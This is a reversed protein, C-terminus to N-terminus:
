KEKGMDGGKRVSIVYGSLALAMFVINFVLHQGWTLKSIIGGCSCPIREFVHSMVLIIYICFLLLLLGSILLGYSRWRSITLLGATLLEAIPVAWLLVQNIAAPFIQNMMQMRSQEFNLLKSLAAYVWLFILLSSIISILSSRKM